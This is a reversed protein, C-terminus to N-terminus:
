RARVSVVVMSVVVLCAALGAVAAVRGRGARAKCASKSNTAALSRRSPKGPLTVSSTAEWRGFTSAM